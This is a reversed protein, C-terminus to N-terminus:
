EEKEFVLDFARIGDGTIYLPAIGAYRYGKEAYEDIVERATKKEETLYDGSFITATLSVYEYKKM